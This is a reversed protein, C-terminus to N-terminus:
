IYTRLHSAVCLPSKLSLFSSLTDTRGSRLPGHGSTSRLLMKKKKGLASFSLSAAYTHISCFLFHPLTFPIINCAFHTQFYLNYIVTFINTCIESVHASLFSKSPLLFLSSCCRSQSSLFSSILLIVPFCISFPSYLVYLSTLFALSSSQTIIYSSFFFAFKQYRQKSSLLSSRKIIHYSQPSSFFKIHYSHVLSPPLKIILNTSSLM